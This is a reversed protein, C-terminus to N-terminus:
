LLGGCVLRLGKNEEWIARLNDFNEDPKSMLEALKDLELLQEKSCTKFNAITLHRPMHLYYIEHNMLCHFDYILEWAITMLGSYGGANKYHEENKPDKRIEKWIDAPFEFEGNQIDFFNVNADELCCDSDCCIWKNKNVDWFETIWHDNKRSTKNFWYAEFGSRVRAPTGKAKLISATLLALYRCTVVPRNQPERDLTLGRLDRRFTENLLGGVTPLTDDECQRWWPIKTMDGYRLDSNSFTNGNQLTVRHIFNKRILPLLEQLNDPLTNKLYESYLGPYTYESFSLYHTKLTEPLHTPM